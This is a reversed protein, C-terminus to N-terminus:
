PKNSENEPQRVYWINPPPVKLSSPTRHAATINASAVLLLDCFVESGAWVRCIKGQRFGVVVYRWGRVLGYDPLASLRAVTLQDQCSPAQDREKGLVQFVHFPRDVILALASVM